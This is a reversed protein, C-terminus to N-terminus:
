PSVNEQGSGGETGLQGAKRLTREYWRFLKKADRFVEEPTSGLLVIIIENGDHKATAVLCKGGRITFGSKLGNFYAPRHWLLMNTNELLVTRGDGHSFPIMEQAAFHRILPVRYAHYAIIASDRATSYQGPMDLGHPNLFLSNKAGLRLARANMRKIFDGYSGNSAHALVSAADNASSVLMAGLVDMKRYRSGAPLGLKTPPQLQDWISVRVERELGGEAISEMATLLKQTSAVPLRVDANKEYLTNGTVADVIIASRARVEPANQMMASLKMPAAVRTAPRFGPEVRSDPPSMSCGWVLVFTLFVLALAGTLGGMAAFLWHGVTRWLRECITKM